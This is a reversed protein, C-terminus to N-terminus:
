LFAINNMNFTDKRKNTHKASIHILYFNTDRNSEIVKSLFRWHMHKRSIANKIDEDDFYTCEIIINPYKFINTNLFIDITTDGCFVFKKEIVINTIEIGEKKLAVIEPTSLGLYDSKLKKKKESFGYSLTPVTHTSEFVEVIIDKNNLRLEFIYGPNLGIVKYYKKPLYKNNYNCALFSDIMNILFNKSANPCYINTSLKNSVNELIILPLSAIHDAHTHTIFIDQVKNYCQHGADLLIRLEHVFFSTKMGATSEGSFSYNINDIKKSNSWQQYYEM